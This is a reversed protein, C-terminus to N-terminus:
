NLYKTLLFLLKDIEIPKSIYDDCLAAMAKKRDDEMAYATQAIIPIYKKIKKIQLAAEYGNIVPMKVDMLILDIQRTGLAIELVEQGDRARLITIGTVKLLEKLFLYNDDDDEALLVTKEQWNIDNMNEMKIPEDIHSGNLVSHFPLTFYFQTGENLKSQVWIEGGLLEVMNKVISLGLGTGRSLIDKDDCVQRFREFIISQQDIPIGTGTDKVYFKLLNSEILEYGMTIEGKPTFKVANDLLNSLIQKLRNIDTKVLSNKDSLGKNFVLKVALAKEEVNLTRKYSVMLEDILRNLIFPEPNVVITNSEIKSLDIIDNILHLLQNGKSQIINIYGNRQEPTLDQKKLLEGFGLIANMPSRIEHSMNALFASKLKDSEEAKKKAGTLEIKESILLRNHAKLRKKYNNIQYAGLVALVSTSILFFNNNILFGYELTNHPFQQMKQIGIAVINYFLINTVSTFIVEPISLNFILTAWLVVLILGSYYGWFAGEHPKAFYIMSAIGLQSVVVLSTLAIRGHKIFNPRYTFLYFIVTVPAIIGFRIIWAYMYTEPLMYLDLIGFLSYMFLGALLVVRIHKPSKYYHENESDLLVELFNFKMALKQYKQQVWPLNSYSGFNV